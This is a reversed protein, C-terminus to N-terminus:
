DGCYQTWTCVAMSLTTCPNQPGGAQAALVRVKQTMERGKLSPRLENSCQNILWKKSEMKVFPIFKYRKPRTSASDQALKTGLVSSLNSPNGSERWGSCIRKPLIFWIMISTADDQSVTPAKFKSKFMYKVQFTKFWSERTIKSKSKM